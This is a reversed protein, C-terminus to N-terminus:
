TKKERATSSHRTEEHPKAPPPSASGRATPVRPTPHPCPRQEMGEGRQMWFKEKHIVADEQQQEQSHETPVTRNITEKDMDLSATIVKYDKKSVSKQLESADIAFESLSFDRLARM